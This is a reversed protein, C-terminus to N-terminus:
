RRGLGAVPRFGLVTVKHSHVGTNNSNDQLRSLLTYHLTGGTGGVPPEYNWDVIRTGIEKVHHDDCQYELEWGTLMPIAYEFPVNEVVFHETTAPLPGTVSCDGGTNYLPLISFPPQIVGVDNGGIGSVMESFAYDHREDADKFLAYSNWSVFGSGALSAGTPVPSNQPLPVLAKMLGGQKNYQKTNDVSM